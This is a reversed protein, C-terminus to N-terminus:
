AMGKRGCLLRKWGKKRRTGGAAEVSADKVPGESATTTTTAMTASSQRKDDDRANTRTVEVSAAVPHRLGIGSDPPPTLIRRPIPTATTPLAAPPLTADAFTADGSVVEASALDTPSAGIEIQADFPFPRCPPAHRTPRRNSSSRHVLITSASDARARGVSQHQLGHGPLADEPAKEPITSAPRNGRTLFNSTKRLTSGVSRTTAARHLDPSAPPTTIPTLNEGLPFGTPSPATLNSSRLVTEKADEYRFNPSWGEKFTLWTGTVVILDRLRLDTVRQQCIDGVQSDDITDQEMSGVRRPTSLPTAANPDPMRFTENVHMNTKSLTAIIPHRRSNSSIISFNFLKAASDQAPRTGDKNKKLVWRVKGELGHEDTGVFEYGGNPIPYAMWDRDGPVCIRAKSGCTAVDEKRGKCILAIIDTEDPDEYQEREEMYKEAKLVVLDNPCLGHKTNFIKTIAKTLRVSFNASPVVEYAPQPRRDPCLRHLQLLSRPRRHLRQRATSAPPPHCVSFRTKPGKSKKRRDSAISGEDSNSRTDPEAFMISNHDADELAAKDKEHQNKENGTGFLLQAPLFSALLSARKNVDRSTANGTEAPSRDSSKSPDDNNSFPNLMSLLNTPVGPTWRSM